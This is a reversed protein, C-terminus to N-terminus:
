NSMHELTRSIIEDLSTKPTWGIFGRIKSTDPVRKRMDEFGKQYAQDYPIKVIESNSNAIKKVKEALAIISIEENSGVNYIQGGPSDKEALYGLAETADGVYCFCRTQEGDGYVEIPEGKLAAAIFRPIVMGYRGTQRPGVTNFLRVVTVPLDKEKHYALALHEDFLKSVAYCWRSKDSAGILLDGDERLIGNDGNKGYVESTSTIITNKGKLAARELVMETCISNTRLTRTPEEVVLKVGVAAALHFITDSSDVLEALVGKNDEISGTYHVFKDPYQVRLHEINKISGTSLNDISYVKNGGKLLREALHSGVFGAGGTVLYSKM